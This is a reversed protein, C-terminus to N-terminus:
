GDYEPDTHLPNDVFLKQTVSLLNERNPVEGGSGMRLM